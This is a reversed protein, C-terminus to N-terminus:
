TLAESCTFSDEVRDRWFKKDRRIEDMFRCAIDSPVNDGQEWAQVTKASVGLFQAFLAQSLNLVERTEKVLKPDYDQPELSMRFKHLRLKKKSIPEDSNLAESLRKLRGVVKRGSSTNM